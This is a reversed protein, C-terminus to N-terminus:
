KMIKRVIDVPFPFVYSRTDENCISNLTQLYRLQLAIPNTEMIDAAEKLAKVADREGQAAAVKAKAERMAEQEVALARKLQDPMFIEKIEVREVRVGWPETSNYLIGEIQNSLYEKSSLLDMLKHTGAVNRLTTMALKETAEEADYVQLMADFPSKISYYVVGDISITVMDRTLIEQRDLDFSRTRIDVVFVDDICPVLFIVGPGRPPKPRLRGLRLIVAREYESMVRLCCFISWPLALVILIMSIVFLTKEACSPPVNESTKVNRQPLISEDHFVNVSSSQALLAPDPTTPSNNNM